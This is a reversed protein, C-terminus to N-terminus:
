RRFAVSAQSTSFKGARRDQVTRGFIPPRGLFFYPSRDFFADRANKYVNQSDIFLILRDNAMKGWLFFLGALKVREPWVAPFM